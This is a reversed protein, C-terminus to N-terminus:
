LNIVVGFVVIHLGYLILLKRIKGSKGMKVSLM